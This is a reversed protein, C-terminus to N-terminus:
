DDGNLPADLDIDIDKTLEIADQLLKAPMPKIREPHREMDKELFNLFATFVPDDKEEDAPKAKYLFVRGDPRVEYQIKDRKGLGLVNRISEPITTQYRDTLTSQSTMVAPM